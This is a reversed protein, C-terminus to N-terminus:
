TLKSPTSRISHYVDTIKTDAYAISGYPGDTLTSGDDPSEFRICM